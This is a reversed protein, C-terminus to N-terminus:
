PNSWQLRFFESSDGTTVVYPSVATPVINTWPGNVKSSRQLVFGAGSWAIQFSGVGTASVSMLPPEPPTVWGSVEVLFNDLVPGRTTSTATAGLASDNRFGFELPAGNTFVPSTGAFQSVWTMGAFAIVGNTRMTLSTLGNLEYTVVPGATAPISNVGSSTYFLNTGQRLAFRMTGIVQPAPVARAVDLSLRLNTAVGSFVANGFFFIQAGGPGNTTARNIGYTLTANAGSSSDWTWPLNTATSFNIIADPHLPATNTAPKWWAGSMTADLNTYAFAPPSSTFPISFTEPAGVAASAAYLPYEPGCNTEARVYLGMAKSYLAFNTSNLGVWVFKADETINTTNSDGRKTDPLTHVYGYRKADAKLFYGNVARLAVYGGGADVVNFTQDAAISNACAPGFSVPLNTDAKV